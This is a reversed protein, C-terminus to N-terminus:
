QFINPESIDVVYITNQKETDQQGSYAGYAFVLSKSDPSFDFVASGDVIRTVSLKDPTDLNSVVWVGSLGKYEGSFALLKGNPSWKFRSPHVIELPLEDIKMNEPDYLYLKWPYDLFNEIQDWNKPDNSESYPKTGLFAVVDDTPSWAPFDARLFETTLNTRSDSDDLHYLSSELYLGNVDVLIIEKMDQSYSFNGVWGISPEIYIDKTVKKAIDIEQIIQSKPNTCSLIFRPRQNLLVKLSRTFPRRCTSQIHLPKSEQSDVYLVELKPYNEDDIDMIITQSDLWAIDLLGGVPLHYVERVPLEHSMDTFGPQCGALIMSGLLVLLTQKKM